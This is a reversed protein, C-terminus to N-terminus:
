AQKVCRDQADTVYYCWHWKLQLYLDPKQESKLKQQMVATRFM